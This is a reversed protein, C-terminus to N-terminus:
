SGPSVVHTLMDQLGVLDPVRAMMRRSRARALVAPYVVVPMVLPVRSGQRVHFELGALGILLVLKRGQRSRPTPRPAIPRSPEGIKVM